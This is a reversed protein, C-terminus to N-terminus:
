IRLLDLFDRFDGHGRRFTGHVKEELELKGAAVGGRTSHDHAIVAQGELREEEGEDIEVFPVTEDIVHLCDASDPIIDAAVNRLVRREATVWLRIPRLGIRDTAQLDAERFVEDEIDGVSREDFVDEVNRIRLMQFSLQAKIVGIKESGEREM